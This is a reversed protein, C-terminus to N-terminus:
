QDSGEMKPLKGELENMKTEVYKIQSSQLNLAERAKQHDNFEENALQTFPTLDLAIDFLKDTIIHKGSPDGSQMSPM